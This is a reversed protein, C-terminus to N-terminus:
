LKIFKFVRNKTRLVFIGQPLDSVDVEGILLVRRLLQSAANFVVGETDDADLGSIHFFGGTPNPYLVATPCRVAILQVTSDRGLEVYQGVDDTAFVLVDATIVTSTVVVTKKPCQASISLPYFALLFLLKRM